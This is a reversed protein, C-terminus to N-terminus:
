KKALATQIARLQRLMWEAYHLKAPATETVGVVPVGGQRALARLKETLPDTVQTNYFFLKVKGTRLEDNIAATLSASPEAENMVSMQFPLHRMEFGLAAAMAGFVPESATVPTGAHNARISAVQASVSKMSALFRGLNADYQTKHSPDRRVLEARLAKAYVPMTAPDYWVHPNDGVKKGLLPAVALVRRQPHKSASLLKDMWPDYNIGNYVVIDADALARATSPSAEFLHPDQNPNSLISIVQVNAGGIQQAVDGYFNEAAVISIPAASAPSGLLM